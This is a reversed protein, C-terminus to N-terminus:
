EDIIDTINADIMDTVSISRAIIGSLINVLQTSSVYADAGFMPCYWADHDRNYVYAPSSTALIDDHYVEIWLMHERMNKHIEIKINEVVKKM